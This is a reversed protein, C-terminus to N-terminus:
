FTHDVISEAWYFHLLEIRIDPFPRTLMGPSLHLTRPNAGAELDLNKSAFIYLIMMLCM